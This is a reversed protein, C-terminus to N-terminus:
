GNNEEVKVFFCHWHRGFKDVRYWYDVLSYGSKKLHKAFEDKTWYSFLRKHESGDEWRETEFKEGNGHKLSIFGIAGPKMVSKIQSLAKAIKSKPIHLLVAACWFGDFSDDFQLDYVSHKLFKLDPNDKRAVEVMGTSIETGAYSYGLKALEKADRGGGAGIELLNGKPLLKKFRRMEKGWFDPIQHESAWVDAMKDYTAVTEQEEPLLDTM